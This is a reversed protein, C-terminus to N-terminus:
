YYTLKRTDKEFLQRQGSEQTRVWVTRKTWNGAPDLEYEYDAEMIFQEEPSYLIVKLPNQKSRDTFTYHTTAYRGDSKYDRCVRQVSENSSFCVGSGYTPKDGPQQWFSLVVDDRLEFFLRLSGDRNLSTFTALHGTDRSYTEIVHMYHDGPGSGLSELTNGQDDFTEESHSELKGNPKYTNSEVVNGRSDYRFTTVNVLRGSMYLDDRTKGFPGNTYVHRSAEEGKENVWLEEQVRGMEDRLERKIAGRFQGNQLTGSRVQNGEKDFECQDCSVPYVVAPGDPQSPPQLFTERSTSVSQIPGAFGMNEAETWKKGRGFVPMALFLVM